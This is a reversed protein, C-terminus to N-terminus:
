GRRRAGGGRRTKRGGGGSVNPDPFTALHWRPCQLLLDDRTWCRCAGPALGKRGCDGWGAGESLVGITTASHLLSSEVSLPGRFGLRPSGSSIGLERRPAGWVTKRGGQNMSKRERPPGGFGKMRAEYECLSMLFFFWCFSNNPM